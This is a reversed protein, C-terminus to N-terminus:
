PASELGSLLGCAAGSRAALRIQTEKSLEQSSNLVKLEVLHFTIAGMAPLLHRDEIRLDPRDEAIRAKEMNIFDVRKQADVPHLTYATTMLSATEECVKMDHTMEGTKRDSALVNFSASLALLFAVLKM